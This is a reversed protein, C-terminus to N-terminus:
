KQFFISIDTGKDLVSNIKIQANHIQAIHKVIALGLGTGGTAKSRSKDVRFFREFIHEQYKEEIGIGTDSVTLVAQENESSIKVEVTGGERNYRIANDYLNYILEELLSPNSKIYISEGYLHISVNKAKANISLADVCKKATEYLDVSSFAIDEDDNEDLQSLKIIDESLSVLRLAQKRITGAFPKIDPEKAIGTEILEAYGAIATLPTKLEHSVNATFQKKQKDLVLQKEKQERLANVFPQLEPETEINEINDLQTVMKEIPKVISKTVAVSIIVSLIVAVLVAIGIVLILENLENKSLIQFYPRLVAFILVATLFILAIGFALIKRLTKKTM